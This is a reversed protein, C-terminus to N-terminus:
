TEREEDFGEDYLFLTVPYPKATAWTVAEALSIGKQKEYQVVGQEVQEAQDSDPCTNDHWTPEVEADIRKWRYRRKRKDIINWIM